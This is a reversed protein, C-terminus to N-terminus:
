QEAGEYVLDLTQILERESLDNEPECGTLRLWFAWLPPNVERAPKESPIDPIVCALAQYQELFHERTM